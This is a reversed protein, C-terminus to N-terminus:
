RILRELEGRLEGCLFGFEESHIHDSIDFIISTGVILGREIIWRQNLDRKLSISSIIELYIM